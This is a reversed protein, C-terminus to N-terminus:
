HPTYLILISNRKSVRDKKAYAVNQAFVKQNLKQQGFLVLVHKQEHAFLKLKKGRNLKLSPHRIRHKTRFKGRLSQTPPVGMQHLNETKGKRKIRRIGGEDLKWGKKRQEYFSGSGSGQLKSPASVTGTPFLATHTNGIKLCTLVKKVYLSTRKRAFPKRTKIHLTYIPIVIRLYCPSCHTQFWLMRKTQRM